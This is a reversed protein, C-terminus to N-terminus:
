PPRWEYEVKSLASVQADSPWILCGVGVLGKICFDETSGLRVCLRVTRGFGLKSHAGKVRDRKLPDALIHYLRKFDDEIEEHSWSAFSNLSFKRALARGLSIAAERRPSLWHLSSGNHEHDVVSKRFAVDGLDKARGLPAWLFYISTMTSPGAEPPSLEESCLAYACAMTYFLSLHSLSGLIM